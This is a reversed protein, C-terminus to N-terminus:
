VSGSILHYWIYEYMRFGGCAGFLRSGTGLESIYLFFSIHVLVRGLPIIILIPCSDGWYLSVSPFDKDSCLYSPLHMFSIVGLSSGSTAELRVIGMSASIFILHV